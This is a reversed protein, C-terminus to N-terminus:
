FHQVVRVLDLIDVKGDKNVDGRVGQGRQGLNQSIMVLDRIDVLGDDNVDEPRIVLQAIAVISAGHGVRYTQHFTEDTGLVRVVDQGGGGWDPYAIYLNDDPAFTMGWGDNEDVIPTYLGRIWEMDVVDYIFIGRNPFRGQIFLHKQSNIAFSGPTMRLKVTKVIEDTTSDIFVLNGPILNYDGTTKVIVTAEGDNLIEGANTPMPVTKLVTDTVTDIVTLSSQHYRVAKEVVDYEWASNTVYAKGNLITIGFPKNFIDIITKTVRRAAVDVVHVENAGECTVYMKNENVFALKQPNAGSRFAITDVIERHQLNIILINDSFANTVYALHGRIVLDNPVNGLPIVDNAVARKADSEALDIISLSTTIGLDFHTLANVVVAINQVETQGFASCMLLTWLLVCILLFTHFRSRKTCLFHRRLFFVTNM